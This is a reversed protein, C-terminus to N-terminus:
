AEVIRLRRAAMTGAAIAFALLVAINLGVDALGGGWSIVEHLGGMAWSTPFALAVTRLWGPMVEAPWWCGGLASMMLTFVVGMGAASDPSGFLAGALLGFTAAALVWSLLLLGLGLPSNGWDIRFIALGIVLFVGTQVLAVGTRGLLKGLIIQPRTVSTSALRRLLGRKREMALLAAGYTMTSLMVFMVLNGPITQYYGSPTVRGGGWSSRVVVADRDPPLDGFAMGALLRITAKHISAQAALTAEANANKRTKLSLAIKRREGIAEGFDKPITLARAPADDGAAVEAASGVVKVTFNEAALLEVFRRAAASGDEQVVTLSVRTDAPPQARNIFGFFLVWLFPALFIWFLSSKDRLTLRIDERAIALVKV